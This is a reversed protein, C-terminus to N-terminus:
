TTMLFLARAWSRQRMWADDTGLSSPKVVLYYISGATVPITGAVSFSVVSNNTIGDFIASPSTSGLFTQNANDPSGAADGYLFVNV